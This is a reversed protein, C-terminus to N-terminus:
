EQGSFASVLDALRYKADIGEDRDLRTQGIFLLRGNGASVVYVNSDSQLEEQLRLGAEDGGGWEEFVYVSITIAYEPDVFGIGDVARLSDPIWEPVTEDLAVGTRSADLLKRCRQLEEQAPSSEM